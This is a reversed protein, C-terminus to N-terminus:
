DHALLLACGIAIIIVIALLGGGQEIFSEETMGISRAIEQAEQFNGATVASVIREIQEPNDNLIGQLIEADRAALSIHEASFKMPLDVHVNRGSAVRFKSQAQTSGSVSISVSASSSKSATEPMYSEQEKQHTSSAVNRGVM